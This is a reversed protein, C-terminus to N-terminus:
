RPFFLGKIAGYGPVPVMRVDRHGKVGESIRALKTPGAWIGNTPSGVVCLTEDSSSAHRLHQGRMSWDTWRNSLVVRKAVIEITPSGKM